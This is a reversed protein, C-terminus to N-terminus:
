CRHIHTGEGKRGDSGAAAPKLNGREDKTKTRKECFHMQPTKALEELCENVVSQVLHINVFGRAFDGRLGLGFWGGLGAWFM